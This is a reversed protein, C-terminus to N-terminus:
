NHNHVESTRYFRERLCTPCNNNFVKFMTVLLHRKAREELNSWEVSNLAHPSRISYDARTIILAGRNHLKQLKVDRTKFCYGWAVDCYDFYPQVLSKTFLKLLRKNIPLNELQVSNEYFLCSQNREMYIFESEPIRFFKAQPIRYGQSEFGSYLQLFGFGLNWQGLNFTVSQHVESLPQFETGSIRFGGRSKM